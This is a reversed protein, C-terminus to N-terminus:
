CDSVNFDVRRDIADSADDRGTGILNEGFGVGTAKLKDALRPSSNQLLDKIFQARLVSLRENVQAPGTKSTHGVLQLCTNRQVARTAIQSLWMPYPASIQPDDVFQTSGPKFLFRMSLKKGALSYDVLSGFADTADDRRNLKWNALYIGSRVRLQDGGTMKLATRYFALSERYRRDDYELIADSILSSTGIREVYVPDIPDGPKTGQCAKIYISTAPDSAWVPTDAFAPTPTVDIAEPKARAVGKSVISKSRLDALALCIRYADRPGDAVGANNVATFTGILVVPGRSLAESSFPRVEFRPYSKRVLAVIREQMLRTATSQAGSIGDILPDIVLEIKGDGPPVVAKSFLDNAARLLADDFPVPTPPPPPSPAAQPSPTPQPLAATAGALFCCATCILVNL